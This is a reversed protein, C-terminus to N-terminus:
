FQENRSFFHTIEVLRKGCIDTDDLPRKSVNSGQPTSHFGQDLGNDDDSINLNDMEEFEAVGTSSTSAEQPEAVFLKSACLSSQSTGVEQLEKTSLESSLDKKNTRFYVNITQPSLRYLFTLQSPYELDNFQFYFLFYLLVTSFLKIKVSRYFM